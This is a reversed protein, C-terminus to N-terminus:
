LGEDAAQQCQGGYFEAIDWQIAGAKVQTRIDALGESETFDKITIGLEKATPELFAKREADQYIGGWSAFSVSDEALAPIAVALTLTSSVAFAAALFSRMSTEEPQATASKEFPDVSRASRSREM